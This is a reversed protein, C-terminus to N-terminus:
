PKPPSSIAAQIVIIDPEIDPFLGQARWPNCRFDRLIQVPLDSSNSRFARNGARLAPFAGLNQTPFSNKFLGSIEPV